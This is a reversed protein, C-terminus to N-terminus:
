TPRPSSDMGTYDSALGSRGWQRAREFDSLFRFKVTIEPDQCGPIRKVTIGAVLAEVFRRKQEFTVAGKLLQPRLDGLLRGAWDLSLRQSEAQEQRTELEALEMEMGAADAEIQQVEHRVESEDFVGEVLQRLVRKRAMSKQELAERLEKIKDARRARQDGEAAMKQELERLALGPAALFGAVQDWVANELETGRVGPSPCRQGNAYLGRAGHKGNCRYYFERKGSPRTAATGIYTLGCVGCRILGRLLYSNKAHAMAAIANGRMAGNAAEWLEPSVIAPCERTIWQDRPNPKLHEQGNEDRVTKRKGYEHVGRYTKNRIMNGIRAPRWFGSTRRKRKGRLVERSDRTYSPPVGTCNLYEAIVFCSKGDAAMQFIRKVVEAESPKHGPIPDTSIVLRALRGQGQKHYGYPVIGGLWVGDQALRKSADTSREVISDREYTAVASHMATLFRGSASNKAAGEKTSEVEIGFSLLDRLTGLM